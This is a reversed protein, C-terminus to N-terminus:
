RAMHISRVCEAERERQGTGGSTPQQRRTRNTQLQENAVRFVCAVQNFVAMHIGLQHKFDCVVLHTELIPGVLTLIHLLHCTHTMYRTTHFTLVRGLLRSGTQVHTCVRM